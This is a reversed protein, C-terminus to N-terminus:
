GIVIQTPTPTQRSPPKTPPVPTATPPIPTATPPPKTPPVPTNTPARTPAKTPTRTPATPTPTPPTPTVAPPAPTATPPVPTPAPPQTPPPPPVPTATPSAPPATPVATPTPTAAPTGTPMFREATALADGQRDEGGVVLVTGDPLLTATHHARPATMPITLWSNATPDYEEASSLYQGGGAAIGGIVLLRGDRLLTATHFTPDVAVAAAPSWTGAAPNCLEANPGGGPAALLALGGPGTAGSSGGGVAIALGNGLLTLTYNLRAVAMSATTQWRGARVDFVEASSLAGGGSSAGGAILVHDKDLVTAAANSRGEAMTGAASWVNTAPDYIEATAVAAVRGDSTTTEGGAVLVRGDALLTATHGARPTAMRGAPSWRDTGPDYREADALEGGAGEGGTVLVTGDPLLTATQGTRPEALPAAPRWTNSVSDYREATGLEVPAGGSGSSGGVVLVTGDNLLTATHGMRPAALMGAPAWSGVGVDVRPSAPSGAAASPSAPSTPTAAAATATPAPTPGSLPTFTATPVLPALTPTPTPARRPGSCAVLACAVLVALVPRRWRGRGVGSSPM